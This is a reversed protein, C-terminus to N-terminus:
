VAVKLRFEQEERAAVVAGVCMLGNNRLWQEILVVDSDRLYTAECGADVRVSRERKDGLMRFKFEAYLVKEFKEPILRRGDENKILLCKSSDLKVIEGGPMQFRVGSLRITDIRNNDKWILTDRRMTAVREPFFVTQRGFFQDSGALLEGFRAVYGAQMDPELKSLIRLEGHVKNFVIGDYAEPVLFKSVADEGEYVGMRIPQGGHRVVFWAENLFDFLLVKARIKPAIGHFWTTFDAALGELVAASPLVFDPVVGSVSPYYAFCRKKFIVVRAHARDLLDGPLLAARMATDHFTKGHFDSYPVGMRDAEELMKQHGGPTAMEIILVMKELFEGPTDEGTEIFMAAIKDYPMNKETPVDPLGGLRAAVYGSYRNLFRCLTEPEFRKLSEASEFCKRNDVSM